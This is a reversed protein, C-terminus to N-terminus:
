QIRLYGMTTMISSHGLKAKVAPLSVGTEIALTAATHRLAHAHGMLGEMREGMRGTAQTPSSAAQAVMEVTAGIRENMAERRLM